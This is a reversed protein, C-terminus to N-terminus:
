FSKAKDLNERKVKRRKILEYTTIGKYNLFIHFAFLNTDLILFIGVFVLFVYIYISFITWPIIKNVIVGELNPYQIHKVCSIVSLIIFSGITTIVSTIM